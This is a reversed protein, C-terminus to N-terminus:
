QSGFADFTMARVENPRSVRYVLPNPDKASNRCAALVKAIRPRWHANDDVLEPIGLRPDDFPL